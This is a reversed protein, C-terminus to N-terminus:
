GFLVRMAHALKARPLTDAGLLEDDEDPDEVEEAEPVALVPDGSPPPIAPPDLVLLPAEAVAVEDPASARLHVLEPAKTMAATPSKPM